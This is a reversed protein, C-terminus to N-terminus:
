VATTVFAALKARFPAAVRALRVIFAARIRLVLTAPQSDGPRLCRPHPASLHNQLAVAALSNM